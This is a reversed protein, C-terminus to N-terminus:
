VGVSTTLEFLLEQQQVVTGKDDDVAKLVVRHFGLPAFSYNLKDSLAQKTFRAELKGSAYNYIEITASMNQGSTCPSIKYSVSITRYYATKGDKAAFSVIPNCSNGGGGGGTKTTDGGTNKTSSSSTTKYFKQVTTAKAVPCEEKQCSFLGLLMVITLYTIKKM